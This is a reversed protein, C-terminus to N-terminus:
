CAYRTTAPSDMSSVRGGEGCWGWGAGSRGVERKVQKPNPPHPHCPSGGNSCSQNFISAGGLVWDKASWTPLSPGTKYVQRPRNQM